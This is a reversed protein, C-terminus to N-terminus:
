RLADRLLRANKVAQGSGGRQALAVVEALEGRAALQQATQWLRESRERREALSALRVRSDRMVALRVSRVLYVLVVVILAGCVGLAGIGLSGERGSTTDSVIQFLRAVLYGILDFVPGLLQDWWPRAQDVRFEPRALIDHLRTLAQDEDV